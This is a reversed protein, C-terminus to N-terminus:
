KLWFLATGCQPGGDRDGTGMFALPTSSLSYFEFGIIDEANLTLLNLGPTLVGNVYVNLECLGDRRSGLREGWKGRIISLGPIRSSLLRSVTQGERGEFDTWDLFRGFGMARRQDFERLRENYRSPRAAEVRLTGLRQPSMSMLIEASLSDQDEIQIQLSGSDYGIKRLTVIFVGRTLGRLLFAGLSDTTTARGLEAIDIRVGSLPTGNAEDFIRGSFQAHQARALTPTLM